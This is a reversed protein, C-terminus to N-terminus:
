AEDIPLNLKIEYEIKGIGGAPITVPTDLVTRDALFTNSNNILTFMGLEAISIADDSINTVTITFKCPNGYEKVFSFSIGSSILSEMKYDDITPPTTGSGFAIGTTTDHKNWNLNLQTFFISSYYTSSTPPSTDYKKGTPLTTGNKVTSKTFCAQFANYWNRTVM